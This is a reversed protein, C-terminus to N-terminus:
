SSPPVDIIDGADRRLRNPDAHDVDIPDPRHAQSRQNLRTDSEGMTDLVHRGVKGITAADIGRDAALKSIFAVAAMMVGVDDLLIPDPMFDVPSFLYLVTGWFALKGSMPMMDSQVLKFMRVFKIFYIVAAVIMAIVVILVMLLLWIPWQDFIDMKKRRLPDFDGVVIILDRVFQSAMKVEYDLTQVCPRACMSKLIVQLELSVM